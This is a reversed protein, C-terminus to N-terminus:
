TKTISLAAFFVFAQALDRCMSLRNSKKSFLEGLRAGVFGEERANQL